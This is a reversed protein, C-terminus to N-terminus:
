RTNTTRLQIIPLCKDLDLTYYQLEKLGVVSRPNPIVHENRLKHFETLSVHLYKAAAERGLTKPKNIINSIYILEENSLTPCGDTDLMEIAKVLLKRLAEM